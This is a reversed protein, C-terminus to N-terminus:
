FMFRRSYISQLIGLAMMSSVVSSGGYTILILPVGTIPLFGVMMGINVIVQMALYTAIGASLFRGFADKAGATVQFSLYILGFFCLLIFFIGMLGFEEAFAAFVSDTHAAPLWEKGSFDGELWGRGTIGGLSIATQSAQQHYTYPNLREYQYEKIFQTAVPRIKEHSITGTFILGVSLLGIGGLIALWRVIKQRIGGLYFMVLAIPYLVLATGLDPEKLILVFPIFVLLLAEFATRLLHTSRGRMELFTSLTIVVILKAYESPQFARGIGPIRYWRHVNQIPTTFFLGVLLLIIIGYLVWSWSKLKRYDIGTFFFFVGWGLIFWQIQSKASPTLFATSDGETTMSAIVLTSITMLSLLIMIMRLDVRFIYRYDFM